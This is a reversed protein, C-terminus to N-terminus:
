ITCITTKQKFDAMKDTQGSKIIERTVFNKCLNYKEFTYRSCFRELLIGINKCQTKFKTYVYNIYSKSDHLRFYM